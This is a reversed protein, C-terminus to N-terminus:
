KKGAAIAKDIERSLMAGFLKNMYSIAEESEESEDEPPPWAMQLSEALQQLEKLFADEDKPDRSSNFAVKGEPDIVLISPYGTVGYRAASAGDAVSSGRDIGTETKWGKEKKLKEIQDLDGDPTHIGLFAVRKSEYKEALGQMMPIAQVCGGCWIGWFDLVVVRGRYDALTRTKGDSWAEIDWGPAMQGINIPERPKVAVAPIAVEAKLRLKTETNNAQLSSVVLKRSENLGPYMLMVSVTGAPLNKLIGRGEADTRIAMRRLAYSGIPEVVAGAVPRDDQDVVRIPLWRGPKLIFKGADMTEASKKPLPFSRSDLCAFGDKNFSFNVIMDQNTETLPVKLRFKGEADTKSTSPWEGNGGGKIGAAMGVRVDDIPKGAADVILGVIEQVEYQTRPLQFTLLPRGNVVTVQAKDITAKAGEEDILVVKTSDPVPNVADVKTMDFAPDVILETSIQGVESIGGDASHGSVSVFLKGTSGCQTFMGRGDHDLTTMTSVLAKMFSVPEGKLWKARVADEEVEYVSIGMRTNEPIGGDVAVQVPWAPGRQAELELTAVPKDVSTALAKTNDDPDLWYGPKLDPFWVRLNGIPVEVRFRGNEDTTARVLKKDPNPEGDVLFRLGAGGIPHKSEKEIVTGAVYYKGAKIAADTNGPQQAAASSNDNDRLSEAPTQRKTEEQEQARAPLLLSSAAILLLLSWGGVSVRTSAASHAIMQIRKRLTSTGGFNLVLAPQSLQSRDVLDMVKLLTQAYSKRSGCCRELVMFDCCSEAALCLERRAFWAVPHWWFVTAVFFGFLNSWHDRRELHALEHALVNQLEEDDLSQIVQQSLVVIVQRPGSWVVPAVPSDVIVLDPVSRLRFRPALNAFLQTVRPAPSQRDRLLRQLRQLQRLSAFWVALTAALSVAVLTITATRWPSIKTSGAPLSTPAALTSSDEHESSQPTKIISPVIPFQRESEIPSRDAVKTFPGAPVKVEGSITPGIAPLVPVSIFSPTAMKFLVLLWFGHCVAPRSRIWPIRCLCWVLVGFPVCLVLNWGLRMWLEDM